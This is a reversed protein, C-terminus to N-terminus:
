NKVKEKQIAVYESFPKRQKNGRYLWRKFVGLPVGTINRFGKWAPSYNSLYAAKAEEASNFGLMVKSEDFECEKNNQDVVYVNEINEINPGLFVDVADGDKGNGSTNKFYGYHNNMTQHGESGDEKRYKRISGKPNEISIRMGAVSVHGMKYNGAEKQAKTPNPEAQSANSDVEERTMNELLRNKSLNGFTGISGNTWDELVQNLFLERERQDSFMHQFKDVLLDILQGKYMYKLPEGNSANMSFVKISIPFGNEGIKEYDHASFGNDLFKKVILVKQPNICYPKNVKKDVPMQYVEEKISDMIQKAQAETIYITKKSITEKLAKRKQQGRDDMSLPPNPTAEGRRHARNSMNAGRVINDVYYIGETEDYRLTFSWKKNQTTAEVMGNTQLQSLLPNMAQQKALAHTTIYEATNQIEDIAKDSCTEIDTATWTNPYNRAVNRYYKTIDKIAKSTITVM